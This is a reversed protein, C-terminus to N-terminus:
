FVILIIYIYININYKTNCVLERISKSWKSRSWFSWKTYSVSKVVIQM